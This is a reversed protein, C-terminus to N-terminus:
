TLRSSLTWFLSLCLSVYVSLPLFFFFSSSTLSLSLLLLFLLASSLHIPVVAFFVLELVVLSLSWESYSSSKWDNTLSSSNHLSSSLCFSLLPFPYLLWLSLLLWLLPFLSSSFFSFLLFLLCLHLSSLPLLCTPYRSSQSTLKEWKLVPIKVSVGKPNFLYWDAGLPAEMGVILVWSYETYM